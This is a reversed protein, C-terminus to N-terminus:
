TRKFDQRIKQMSFFQQVTRPKLNTQWEKSWFIAVEFLISCRDKRGKAGKIQKMIMIDISSLYRICDREPNGTKRFGGIHLMGRLVHFLALVVHKM